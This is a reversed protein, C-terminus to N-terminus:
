FEYLPARGDPFSPLDSRSHGHAMKEGPSFLVGFVKSSVARVFAIKVARCCVLALLLGRISRMIQRAPSNFILAAVAKKVLRM